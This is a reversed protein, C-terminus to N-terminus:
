LESALARFFGPPRGSFSNPNYPLCLLLFFAFSIDLDIQKEHKIIFFYLFFLNNLELVDVIATDM